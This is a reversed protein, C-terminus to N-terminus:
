KNKDEFTKHCTPRKRTKMLLHNIRDNLSNEFDGWELDTLTHSNYQQLFLHLSTSEPNLQSDLNDPPKSNNQSPQLITPIWLTSSPYTPITNNIRYEFETSSWWNTSQTKAFTCWDWSHHYYSDPIDMATWHFIYSTLHLIVSTM